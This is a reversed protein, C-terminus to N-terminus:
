TTSKKASVKRKLKEVGEEVQTEAQEVCKEMARIKKDMLEDAKAEIEEQAKKVLTRMKYNNAVLVAGCVGGLALGIVFKEM